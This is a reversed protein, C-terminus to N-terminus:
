LATVDIHRDVLEADLRTEEVCELIRELQRHAHAAENSVVALALVATQWADLEEVQRKDKLSHSAPLHLTLVCAGVYVALTSGRAKRERQVHDSVVSTSQLLYTHLVPM